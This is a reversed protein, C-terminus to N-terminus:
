NCMEMPTESWENESRGDTGFKSHLNMRKGLTYLLQGEKGRRENWGNSSPIFMCYTHYLNNLNFLEHFSVKKSKVKICKMNLNRSLLEQIVWCSAIVLVHLCVTIESEQWHWPLILHWVLGEQSNSPIKFFNQTFLGSFDYFHTYFWLLCLKWLLM